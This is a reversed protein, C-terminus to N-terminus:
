EEDRIQDMLLTESLTPLHLPERSGVFIARNRGQYPLPPPWHLPYDRDKPQTVTHYAYGCCDRLNSLLWDRAPRCCSERTLGQDAALGERCKNVKGNDTPLVMSSVLLLGTCQGALEHLVALPHELHYLIGYMFVIDFQGLHSCSNPRNLDLLHIRGARWSHRRIDEAINGPRGEVSVVECGREEWFGTLYGLGSGVELVRKGELGLGLSALHELRAQNLALCDPRDFPWKTM